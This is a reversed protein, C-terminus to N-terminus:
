RRDTDSQVDEQSLAAVQMLAAVQAREYDRAPGAILGTEGRELYRRIRGADGLPSRTGFSNLLVLAMPRGDIETVMVLCRGAENLYGTKSLAVQWEGRRVLPNTNVFNLSYGPNRLRVEYSGTTSLALLQPQAYAARLLLILDAATSQNDPSLGTADVFRTQQMGLALAKANMAQLFAPKGGPYHRGLQYAALNESSSLAMRLLDERRAASGVRLRTFANRTAPTERAVITVWEDLPQGAELVVLATMLKTISAIPVQIDDHKRLLVEDTDLAVVRAHVSALPPVQNGAALLPLSSLFLVVFACRAFLRKLLSASGFASM